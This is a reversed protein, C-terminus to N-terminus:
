VNAKRFFMDLNFYRHLLWDGLFNLFAGKLLFEISLLGELHLITQFFFSIQVFSVGIFRLDLTRDVHQNEITKGLM